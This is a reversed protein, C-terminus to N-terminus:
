FVVRIFSPRNFLISAWPFGQKDDHGVFVFPLQSFFERHQEPMFDHIVQRGFREM